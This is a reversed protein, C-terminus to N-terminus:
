GHHAILTGRSNCRRFRPLSGQIDNILIQTIPKRTQGSFHWRNSPRHQYRLPHSLYRSRNVLGLGGALSGFLCVFWVTLTVSVFMKREPAEARSPSLLLAPLCNRPCSPLPLRKSIFPLLCLWNPRSLSYSPFTNCPTRVSSVHLTCAPRPIFRHFIVDTSTFPSEPSIISLYM